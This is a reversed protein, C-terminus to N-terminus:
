TKDSGKLGAVFNAIAKTQEAGIRAITKTVEAILPDRDVDFSEPRQAKIPVCAPAVLKRDDVVRVCALVHDGDSSKM